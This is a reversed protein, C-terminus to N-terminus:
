KLSSLYAAVAEVEPRTLSHAVPSMIAAPDPKAPNLGREKSWNTLKDYIYDHLQGALRPIEGNGQASPGHCAACAAVNAEPVGNQFIKEGAGVLGMPAGGLPKPNFAQFNASLAAIMSPSLTHAVNFMINNTRRHEVFAQLQNKLYETQQGALRPIPFFGRYGQGSPGHCDQCYELKARVEGGTVASGEAGVARSASSLVTVLLALQLGTAGVLRLGPRKNPTDTRARQARPGMTMKQGRQPAGPPRSFYTRLHWHTKALNMNVAGLPSV